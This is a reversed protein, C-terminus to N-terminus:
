ILIWEEICWLIPVSFFPIKSDIYMKGPHPIDSQLTMWRSKIFPLSTSMLLSLLTISLYHKLVINSWHERRLEERM